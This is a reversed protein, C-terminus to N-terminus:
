ESHRVDTIDTYSKVGAISEFYNKIKLNVRKKM